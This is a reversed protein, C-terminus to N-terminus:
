AEAATLPWMRGPNLVGRPDFGAKVRRSLTALAPPEPQFAGIVSRVLPSARVLTAHGGLSAAAGRVWKAAGPDDACALWVLGGGWDYFAEARIEGAIAEVAAPGSMPALSLRWVQRGDGAFAGADRIWRWLRATAEADLQDVMELGSLAGGVSWASPTMAPGVGEIRLATVAGGAAAVAAVPARVAVSAPLHAAGTVEARASLAASMARAALGDPAGVVLLTAAEPPRPMVKFTLETLVALTGWSGAMLKSLDYGTVNKVVKGGAKFAEGRGSVGAFGLFHDRAAGAKIRRPGSANAGIMGGLTGRGPAAGFLPGFDMPEFALRQGHAELLAEIEAVPTGPLVTLVLESPEYSVVGSMAALSLVLDPAFPCGIQAKGGAGEVAIAKAEANAWGVAEEVERVSRPEIRQVTEGV